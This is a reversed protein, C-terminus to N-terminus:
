AELLHPKDSSLLGPLPGPFNCWAGAEPKAREAEQGVTRHPSSGDAAHISGESTRLWFNRDDHCSVLWYLRLGLHVHRPTTSSIGEVGHKYQPCLLHLTFVTAQREPAPHSSPCGQGGNGLLSGHNGQSWWPGFSVPELPFM